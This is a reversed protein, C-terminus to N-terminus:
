SAGMRRQRSLYKYVARAGCEVLTLYVLAALPLLILLAAPM